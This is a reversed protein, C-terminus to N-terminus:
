QRCPGHPDAPKTVDLTPRAPANALMMAADYVMRSVRLLDPYDIYQEEDTV